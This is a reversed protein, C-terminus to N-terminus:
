EVKVPVLTVQAAASPAVDVEQFRNRARWLRGVSEPTAEFMDATAAVYYKGPAVTHSIFQGLQDTEGGFMEAQLIAESGVNAPIIWVRMGPVPQGDKNAVRAGITAGDLAMVVRVGGAMAEGMHLPQNMISNGGYTVDKVYLGPANVMTRVGYDGAVLGAFHFTGPIEVRANANEGPLPGRLLPGISVNVKTSVPQEPAVGDWVVEGDISLGQSVSIEIKSLDRDAITVPVLAQNANPGRPGAGARREMAALRYTGPSLDCIRLKGDPGTIGGPAMGFMGGTSSQGYSPQTGEITFTLAAPGLPGRLTGELCYNLSKKLEIDVHERHEGPGVTVAAAGEKVTSNPYFTRVAARRRLKQDLPVESHAPLSRERKEVMVLYPHGAEVRQLTYEGRDDTTAQNKFFYGLVGNFYERSVLLVSLGPVPEKNDDTVKGSISGNVMISFDIGDLDQGSLTVRRTANAGFTQANRAEIRYRGPPLDGIRYHGQEDTVSQVQKTNANTFLANNAWTANVYTSVNYNALPKGTVADKVVGSVAANTVGPPQQAMAAAAVVLGIRLMRLRM